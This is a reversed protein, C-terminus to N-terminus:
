WKRTSEGERQVYRKLDEVTTPRKCTGEFNKIFTKKLEAWSGISSKPIRHQLPTDHGNLRNGLTPKPRPRADM